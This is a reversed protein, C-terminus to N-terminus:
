RARTARTPAGPRAPPSGPRCRAASRAPGPRSREGAGGYTAGTLTGTGPRDRDPRGRGSSRVREDGLGQPGASREGINALEEGVKQQALLSIREHFHAGADFRDALVALHDAPLADDPDDALPVGLVLLPLALIARIAPTSRGRSFRTSTASVYM